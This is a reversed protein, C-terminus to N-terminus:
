ARLKQLSMSVSAASPAASETSSPAARGPPSSRSRCKRRAERITVYDAETFLLTDGAQIAAFRIRRLFKRLTVPKMRLRKAVEELTVEPEYRRLAAIEDEGATM